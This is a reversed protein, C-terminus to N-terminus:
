SNMEELQASDIDKYCSRYASLGSFKAPGRMKQYGKLKERIRAMLVEDTLETKKQAQKKRRTKLNWM